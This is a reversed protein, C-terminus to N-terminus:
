RWQLGGWPWRFLLLVEHYSENWDYKASFNSAALNLQFQSGLPAGANLQTVSQYAPAFSKLSGNTLKIVINSFSCSYGFGYTSFDPINLTRNPPTLGALLVALQNAVLSKAFYNVGAAGISLTMAQM